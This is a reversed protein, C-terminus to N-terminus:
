ERYDDYIEITYIEDTKGTIMSFGKYIVVSEFVNDLLQILDTENIDIVCRYEEIERNIVGLLGLGTEKKIQLNFQALLPYKNIVCKAESTDVTRVYFKM